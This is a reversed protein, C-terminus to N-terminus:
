KIEGKLLNNAIKIAKEALNKSIMKKNTVEELKDLDIVKRKGDKEIVDVELDIYRAFKPYLEVPTNINLYKGKLYNNKDFYSHEVVWENPKLKTIAYDGEKIETNLGDFRGGAMLRRKIIIEDESASKVIGRFIIDRGAIKKQMIEYYSEPQPGNKLLVKNLKSSIINYDINDLAEAFDVVISYNGSKLFHHGPITTTVKKRLNDLENKSVAGFDIFFIKEGEKIIGAKDMRKFKEKISEEEKYLNKIEEKLIEDSKGEAFSKWLIGWGDKKLEASLKQLREKEENSKIRGSIKTFGDKILIANEGFLRLKASLIKKGKVKGKVQVLVKEGERLFGWYNQLTLIGEKNNGLDVIINGLKSDIRKIKGCYVEGMGMRKVAIDTFNEMFLKTLEEINAGSLVIGNLHEKDYIITTAFNNDKIGFRKSLSESPQVIDYGKEKLFQTLATSYIGRIKINM